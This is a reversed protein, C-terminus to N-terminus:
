DTLVIRFGYGSYKIVPHYYHRTSSRMVHAKESNYAGGRLVRGTGKDPGHPNNVPSHKYYREDYWDMCWEWVNGNMDYIGWANPKKQGVQHIKFDSNVSFFCYDTNIKEGWYFPTVSGARCAYEWEAEYPLRVRVNYKRSFRECFEVAKHWSVQNVPNEGSVFISPNENMISEYIAQTVEYKGIRFSDVTVSHVPHEDNWGQGYRTGMSCTGGPVSIFEVGGIQVAEGTGKPSKSNIETSNSPLSIVLFIIIVLAILPNKKIIFLRSKM